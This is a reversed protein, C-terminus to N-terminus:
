PSIKEKWGNRILQSLTLKGNSSHGNARYLPLKIKWIKKEDELTGVREGLARRKTREDELAGTLEARLQTILDDKLKVVDLASDILVTTTDARSKGRGAMAKVLEVALNSGIILAVIEPWNM